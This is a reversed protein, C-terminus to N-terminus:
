NLVILWSNVSHSCYAMVLMCAQGHLPMFRWTTVYSHMIKYFNKYLFLIYGQKLFRKLLPM